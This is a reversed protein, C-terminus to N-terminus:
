LLGLDHLHLLLAESLCLQRALAARGTLLPILTQVWTEERWLQSQRNRLFGLPLAPSLCKCEKM